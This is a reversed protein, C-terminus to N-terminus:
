ELMLAAQMLGLDSITQAFQANPVPQQTARNILRGRPPVGIDRFVDLLTHRAPNVTVVRSFVGPSMIRLRTTPEGPALQIPVVPAKVPETKRPPHRPEAPGMAQRASGAFPDVPPKPAVPEVYDEHMKDLQISVPQEPKPRQEPPLAHVIAPHLENREIAARVDRGIKSDHRILPPRDNVIYGNSYEKLHIVGGEKDNPVILQGSKAGGAYLGDEKTSALDALTSYGRRSRSAQSYSNGSPKSADYPVPRTGGAHHISSAPVGDLHSPSATQFDHAMPNYGCINPPEYDPLGHPVPSPLEPELRPSEQPPDFAPAAPPPPAGGTEFFLNVADNLNGAAELFQRAMGIDVSTMVMFQQLDHDSMAEVSSGQTCLFFYIPLDVPPM